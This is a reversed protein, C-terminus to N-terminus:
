KIEKLWVCTEVHAPHNWIRHTNVKIEENTEQNILMTATSSSETDDMKLKSYVEVGKQGALKNIADSTAKEEQKSRASNCGVAGEGDTPLKKIAWDPKIFRNNAYNNKDENHGGWIGCASSFLCLLLIVTIRYLTSPM